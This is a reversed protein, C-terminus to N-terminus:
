EEGTPLDSWTITTRRNAARGEETDNDAIPQTDGFGTATLTQAPIGRAILADRVANARAASLTLNDGPDGTNDTHGGLDVRLGTGDTCVRIVSVLESITRISQAGLRASGTLFNVQRRDLIARAEATCTARSAQFNVDPLWFGGTFTEARGTRANVRKAGEDPLRDTTTIDVGVGPLLRRLSEAVLDGDVGPLVRGTVRSVRNERVLRLTDFEPLWDGLIAIHDAAGEDEGFSAFADGRLAPLGLAAAAADMDTGAPLKGDLQGGLAADYDFTFDPRGDDIVILDATIVFPAAALAKRAAAEEKPTAAIGTLMGQAGRLELTGSNLPELADLGAGLARGWGQPAGSARTLEAAQPQPLSARLDDHPINGALTLRGDARKGATFRYPDAVPLVALNDRIVRRGRIDDLAAILAAREAETDATGTVTIDRGAVDAAIDHIAPAIAQAARASLDTEIAPARGYGAWLGLGALGAIMVLIGLATRM